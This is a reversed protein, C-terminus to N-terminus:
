PIQDESEVSSTDTAFNIATPRSEDHGKITCQCRPLGIYNIDTYVFKANNASNNLYYFLPQFWITESQISKFISLYM